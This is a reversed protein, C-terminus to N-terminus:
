WIKKFINKFGIDFNSENIIEQRVKERGEKNQLEWLDYMSARLHLLEDIGKLLDDIESDPLNEKLKEQLTTIKDNVEKIDPIGNGLMNITSQQTEPHHLIQHCPKCLTVLLESEYEWAKLNKKYEKHHVNLIVNTAGCQKCTWNDRSFIELKRRQWQSWKLQDTYSLEKDM